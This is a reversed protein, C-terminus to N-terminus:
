FNFYQIKPTLYIYTIWNKVKFKKDVMYFGLTVKLKPGFANMSSMNKSFFESILKVINIQLIGTM